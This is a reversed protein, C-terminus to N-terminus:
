SDGAMDDLNNSTRRDPNTRLHTVAGERRVSHANSLEGRDAMGIATKVPTFRENGELRVHSINGKSDARADVVKRGKTV